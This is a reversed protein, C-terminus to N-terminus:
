RYDPLFLASINALRIKIKIIATENHFDFAVQIKELPM